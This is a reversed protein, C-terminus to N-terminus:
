NEPTFEGIVLNGEEDDQLPRGTWRLSMERAIDEFGPREQADLIIEGVPEDSISRLRAEISDRFDYPM